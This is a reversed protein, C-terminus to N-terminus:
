FTSRPNHFKNHAMIHLVYKEGKDDQLALAYIDKHMMVKSFFKWYNGTSDQKWTKKMRKSETPTKIM